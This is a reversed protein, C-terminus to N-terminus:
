NLTKFGYNNKKCVKRRCSVHAVSDGLFIVEATKLSRHMEGRAGGVGLDQVACLVAAIQEYFM